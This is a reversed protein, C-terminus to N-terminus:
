QWFAAVTIIVWIIAALVLKIMTGALRGAGAGVGSKVSDGMGRGIYLEVCSAGLGAGACAGILSGLVPIPILFTAAIGGIITGALAGWASHKSGGAARTGVLGAGFELSEGVLALVVISVLVPIGFMPEGNVSEWRLAAVVITCAIMLWTGPLGLVVLALWFLNVLTLVSAIVYNM